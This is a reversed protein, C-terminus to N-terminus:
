RGGRGRYGLRRSAVAAAEMVSYTVGHINADVRPIPGAVSIAAVVKAGADRIPAGVSMTGVEAENRNRGFGLERVEALEKKLLEPDTITYPTVAPLDWGNILKDLDARPLAALLVKGSSTCHVWNRRGLNLFFRLTHTSDLRQVYVVELGDLVSVQVTEGTRDRLVAM